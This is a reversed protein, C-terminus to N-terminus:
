RRQCAYRCSYADAHTLMSTSAMVLPEAFTQLQEANTKHTCDTCTGAQVTEGTELDGYFLLGHKQLLQLGSEQELEHWLKLAETQMNSCYKSSYVERYM